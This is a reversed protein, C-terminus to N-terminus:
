KKRTNTKQPPLSRIAFFSFAAFQPRGEPNPNELTKGHPGLDTSHVEFGLNSLVRVTFVNDQSADQSQADTSTRLGTVVVVTDDAFVDKALITYVGIGGPHLEWNRSGESLVGGNASVTGWAAVRAMASCVKLAEPDWQGITKEKIARRGKAM